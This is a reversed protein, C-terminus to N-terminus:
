ISNIRNALCIQSLTSPVRLTVGLLNLQSDYLIDFPSMLNLLLVFSAILFPWFLEISGEISFCVYISKFTGSFVSFM